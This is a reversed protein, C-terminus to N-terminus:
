QTNFSRNLENAAKEGLVPSLAVGMGSLGVASLINGSMWEFVPSKTPGMGMIGSWHAYEKVKSGTPLIERLAYDKLGSIIKENADMRATAEEEKFWHRGGGILLMGNVARFYIYGSESHWSGELKVPQNVELLLVQNRAPLVSLKDPFLQNFFGNTAILVRSTTIRHNRNTDIRVKDGSEDLNEVMFGELIRVGASENLHNIYKLLSAPQVQGEGEIKIAKSHGSALKELQGSEATSYPERGIVSRLSANLQPLKDLVEKYTESQSETFLEYGNNWFISASGPPVLSQIKRLGMYRDRVLALAKEEGMSEIDDLIETPSGYCLFGANRTSAGRSITMEELIVIRIGPNLRSLFYATWAGTFGGGVICVDCDRPLLETEWYSLGAINGM